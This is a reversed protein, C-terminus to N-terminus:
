IKKILCSHLKGSPTPISYPGGFVDGAGNTHHRYNTASAYGGGVTDYTM